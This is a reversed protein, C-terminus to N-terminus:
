LILKFVWVVLALGLGSLTLIMAVVGISIAAMFVNDLWDTKINKM